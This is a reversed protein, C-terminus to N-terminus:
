RIKSQIFAGTGAADQLTLAINGESTQLVLRDARITVKRIQSYYLSFNRNAFGNKPCVGCIGNECLSIYTEALRKKTGRFLLFMLGYMLIVFVAEIALTVVLDLGSAQFLNGSFFAVILSAALVPLSEVFLNGQSCYKAPCADRKLENGLQM